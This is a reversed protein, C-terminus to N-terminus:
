QAFLVGILLGLRIGIKQFSVHILPEQAKLGTFSEIGIRVRCIGIGPEKGALSFCFLFSSPRSCAM